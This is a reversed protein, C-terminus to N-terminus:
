EHDAGIAAARPMLLRAPNGVVTAFPPVDHTVVAGAGVLAGKGIRVGPLIVANAGIVADDEIMPPIHAGDAGHVYPRADNTLVANPGIYVRDGVQTDNPLQAGSHLHVDDGIVCRRGIFVCTGVICRKGCSAGELITSFPWVVSGDGLLVTPHLQHPEHFTVRYSMHM